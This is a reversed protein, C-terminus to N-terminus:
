SLQTPVTAPPAALAVTSPQGDMEAFLDHAPFPVQVHRRELERKLETVFLGQGAVVAQRLLRNHWDIGISDLPAAMIAELASADITTHVGCTPSGDIGIIGVVTFGAARYDAIQDVTAKALRRYRRRTYWSGLWLLLGRLGYAVPHRERLGYAWLLHRKLVGGWALQEPCPLQIIGVDTQLLPEIVERVCGARCAGGLYRTNENLLCHSVFVVQGSRQDRLRQVLTEVHGM